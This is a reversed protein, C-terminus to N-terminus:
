LCKKSYLGHINCYETIEIPVEGATLHFCVGPFGDEGVSKFVHRLYVGKNTELMIYEIHHEKTMPHKDAGITICIVSGNMEYVPVHKELMGDTMEPELMMMESGCCSPTPMTENVELIIKGCTNCRYLKM